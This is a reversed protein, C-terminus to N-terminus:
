PKPRCSIARLLASMPAHDGADVRLYLVSHTTHQLPPMAPHTLSDHQPETAAYCSCARLSARVCRLVPLFICPRRCRGLHAPIQPGHSCAPCAHLPARVCRLVFAASCARLPSRVCCLVCAASNWGYRAAHALIQPGPGPRVRSCRVVSAPAASCAHLLAHVCPLPSPICAPLSTICGPTVPPRRFSKGLTGVSTRPPRPSPARDTAGKPYRVGLGEWWHPPIQPGGGPPEARALPGFRTVM